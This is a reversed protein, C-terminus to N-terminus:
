EVEKILFTDEGTMLWLALRGDGHRWCLDVRGDGNYDGLEVLRWAPDAPAGLDVARVLRTHDMVWLTVLGGAGAQWVIDAQGDGTLDASGAPFSGAGPQHGVSVRTTEGGAGLLWLEVRGDAPDRVVLDDRGDGNFDARARPSAAAEEGGSVAGGAGPSRSAGAPSSGGAAAGAARQGAGSFYVGGSVIADDQVGAALKGAAASADAPAAERAAEAYAWGLSSHQEWQPLYTLIYDREGPRITYLHVGTLTNYFRFVERGGAPAPLGMPYVYGEDREYRWGLSRLVDREAPDATYYHRYTNPNALRHIARAGTTPNNLVYFPIPTSEDQYGLTLANKKEALNTTFFHYLLGPHYARYMPVREPGAAPPDPLPSVGANIIEVSDPPGGPVAGMTQLQALAATDGKLYADLFLLAWTQADYLGEDTFLHEEGEVTVHYGTTPSANLTARAQDVPAVTDLTGSAIFQPATIHGAGSYGLGFLPLIANGCFSVLGAAAKVRPDPTTPFTGLFTDLDWLEAGSWLLLTTGGYSGGIGGVRDWAIRPGFYPDAELADLAQKCSLARLAMQVYPFPPYVQTEPIRGDAHFLAAVIYGHSAYRLQALITGNDDVPSGGYGHSALLLPFRATVGPFLPAEGPAQMHPLTRNAGPFDYGDRPNSDGTPYSILGVMPLTAGAYDGYLNTDNPVVLDFHFAAAPHALVQDVYLLSGGDVDGALYDELAHGPAVLAQDVVLNTCGVAYPGPEPGSDGTRAAAPRPVLALCLGLTMLWFTLRLPVAKSM